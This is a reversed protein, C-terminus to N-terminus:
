SQKIKLCADSSFAVFVRFATAAAVWHRLEPWKADTNGERGLTDGGVTEAPNGSQERWVNDETSLGGWWGEMLQTSKMNSCGTGQWEHLAFWHVKIEKGQSVNEKDRLIWEQMSVGTIPHLTSPFLLRRRSDKPMGRHRARLQQKGTAMTNGHQACGGSMSPLTWRQKGPDPVAHM